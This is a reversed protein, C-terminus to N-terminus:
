RIEFTTHYGPVPCSALFLNMGQKIMMQRSLSLGIGSGTKKTTFFPIFIDQAVDDPIPTGDNSICLSHQYRLDIRTAGAEIANKILNTLVQRLMGEDANINRDLNDNINWTLSPYLERMSTAIDMLNVLNMVPEQISTIKRFNQVFNAMGQSTQHIARIGEEFPSNTINPNSLYAQSISCIPAIGNTIEHTLVRTLRQWAEVENQAVLASIDQSLNNVTDQLAREGFFLRKSPLRFTFDRNRISERMMNAREALLCQHRYFWFVLLVVGGLILGGCVLHLEESTM